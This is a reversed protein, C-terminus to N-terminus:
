RLHIRRMNRHGHVIRNVYIVHSDFRYIIIFRFVRWTRYRRPFERRVQGFGPAEGLKEIADLIEVVVKSARAASSNEHIYRWIEHLDRKAGPSIITQRGQM